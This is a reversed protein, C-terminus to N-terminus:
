FSPFPLQNNQIVIDVEPAVNTSTKPIIVFDRMDLGKLNTRIGNHIM